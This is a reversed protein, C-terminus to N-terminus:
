AIVDRSRAYAAEAEAKQGLKSRISGVNNYARAVENRSAADQGTQAAFREYYALTTALFQRQEPTLEQQRALWDEIVQSTMTDLAERALRRDADAREKEQRTQERERWILATSAALGVVALLLVVVAAAAAAQHRRTWKRLRQPLSPRRARIPQDTLF